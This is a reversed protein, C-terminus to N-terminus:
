AARRASMATEPSATVRTALIVFLALVYLAGGALLTMRLGTYIALVIAGGSGLVSAAANLSWAWRVSPAHLQELRHLGSPFPMGMLFAAPAIMVVTLLV